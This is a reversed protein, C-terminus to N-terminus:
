GQLERLAVQEDEMFALSCLLRDVLGDCRAKLAPLVARPEGVVAFAGLVEDDIREGMEKWLGRKSMQNLETQLDGWGHCALM